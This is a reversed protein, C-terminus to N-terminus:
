NTCKNQSFNILKILKFLGDILINNDSTCTCWGMNKLSHLHALM